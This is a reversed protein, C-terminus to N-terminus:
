ANAEIMKIADELVDIGHHGSEKFYGEVKYLATLIERDYDTLKSRRMEVFGDGHDRVKILTPPLQRTM